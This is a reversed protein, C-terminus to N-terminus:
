SLHRSTVFKLIYVKNTYYYILFQKFILFQAFSIATYKVIYVCHPKNFDTQLKPRAYTNWVHYSM